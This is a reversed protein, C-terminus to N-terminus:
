TSNLKEDRELKKILGINLNACAITQLYLKDFAENGIYQRDLLVYGMSRVEMCSATSYDLFLLFQKRSHRGFGEAINNMVSIAARRIQDKTGFDKSLPEQECLDFVINVLTRAQKWCELDEFRTIAM